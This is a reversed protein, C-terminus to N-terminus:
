HAPPTDLRYVPAGSGESSAYVTRGDPTFAISELGRMRPMRLGIPARAFADTWSEDHAREFFFADRYTIVVARTGDPVIDMSTPVSKATPDWADGIENARQEPIPVPGLRRALLMADSNRPRDLAPLHVAYAIPPNTRKSLFLIQRTTVDVAIAECDMAGDLYRVRLVRAPTVSAGAAFREGILEPEPVVYLTVDSRWGLNDGIDAILIYPQGGFEFAALDEWDVNRAGQVRLAGRDEGDPGLAYLLADNGSDNVAFLLDNRRRSVALGSLETLGANQVHGLLEARRPAAATPRMAHSGQASALLMRNRHAFWGTALVAVFLTAALLARPHSRV